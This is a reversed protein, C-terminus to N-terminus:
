RQAEYDSCDNNANKFHNTERVINYKIPNDVRREKSMACAVVEHPKMDTCLVRYDYKDRQFHICDTCYVKM